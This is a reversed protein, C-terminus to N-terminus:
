AKLLERIQPWSEEAMGRTAVYWQRFRAMSDRFEIVRTYGLVRAARDCSHTVNRLQQPNFRSDYKPRTPVKAVRPPGEIRLRLKAEIPGPLKRALERAAADVKGLLPDARLARRVDSSVLHKIARFLSGRPPQTNNAAIASRPLSPLPASLEALPALEDTFDRWTIGDGDTVFIRRGDVQDVALALEIAHCLNDVDVVNIPMGGDEVLAVTGRRM